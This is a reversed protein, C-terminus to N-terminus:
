PDDEQGKQDKTGRQNGACSSCSLNADSESRRPKKQIEMRRTRWGVKDFKGLSATSFKSVALSRELEAKRLEKGQRGPIKDLASHGTAVRAALPAIGPVGAGAEERNRKERKKNKELRGAKAEKKLAYMDTMPDLNKPVEILWDEMKKDEAGKFGYKRKYEGTSEDFEVPLKKKKQIGKAKAFKEWRTPPKPKPVPKERPIVTVPKPLLAFIGDQDSETPLNFIHNVLLQM